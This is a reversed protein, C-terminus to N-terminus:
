VVLTITMVMITAIFVITIAVIVVFAASTCKFADMFSYGYVSKLNYFFISKFLLRLYFNLSNTSLKYM